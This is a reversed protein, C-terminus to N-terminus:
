TEGPAKGAKAARLDLALCFLACCCANALHHTGFEPDDREGEMWSTVHRLLADTYREKANDVFQWGGATYKEAGKTLVRVVERVADMPLLSWRPKREHKGDAGDHKLGPVKEESTPLPYVDVVGLLMHPYAKEFMTKYFPGFPQSAVLAAPSFWGVPCGLEMGQAAEGHADVEYVYVMVDPDVCGPAFHVLRQHKAVLGTEERLERINAQETTEGPEVKGGPLCWGNFTKNWVTLLLGQSDIVLSCAAQRAEPTGCWRCDGQMGARTFDHDVNGPPGGKCGGSM